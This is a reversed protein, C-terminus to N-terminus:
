VAAQANDPEKIYKGELSIPGSPEGTETMSHLTGDVSVYKVGSRNSRWVNRHWEDKHSFTLQETFASHRSKYTGRM